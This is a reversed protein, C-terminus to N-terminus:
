VTARKFEELHDSIIALQDWRSRIAYVLVNVNQEALATLSRRSKLARFSIMDFTSNIPGLAIIKVCRNIIM